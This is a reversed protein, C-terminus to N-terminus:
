KLNVTYLTMRAANVDAKLLNVTFIKEQQLRQYINLVCFIIIPATVPFSFIPFSIFEIFGNQYM